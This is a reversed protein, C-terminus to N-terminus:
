NIGYAAAVEPLYDKIHINRFSDFHAINDIFKKHLNVDAPQNKWSDFYKIQDKLNDPANKINLWDPYLLLNDYIKINNKVAWELIEDYYIANLISICPSIDTKFNDRYILTNREIEEWITGYRIYEIRKGIADMSVTMIVKDFRKLINFLKNNYITGNTTIRVTLNTDLTELFRPLHKIMMPEGGAIAVEKLPLGRWYDDFKIDYWNEPADYLSHNIPIINQKLMQKSEENLSSSSHPGCSICKLNCSNGFRVDLHTLGPGMVDKDMRRSIIGNEEEIKCRICQDPWQNNAFKERADTVSKSNLWQIPSHTHVTEGTSPGSATCCFRYEGTIGVYVQSELLKCRMHYKNVCRKEL